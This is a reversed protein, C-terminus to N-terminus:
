VLGKLKVLLTVGGSIVSAVGATIGYVGWKFKEQDRLRKEHDDHVKEDMELHDEIRQILSDQKESVRVLLEFQEPTM